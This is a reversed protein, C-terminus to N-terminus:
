NQDYTYLLIPQASKDIIASLKQLFPISVTPCGESRCISLPNVEGDPVCSHSHLVVFRKFANSNTADLGYLKYARGFRGNYPKGIKYRGLSTCGCGVDNGYKRENSCQGHTVLGADIVSDKKLDYIFFRNKGSEIRMDILFCTNTNYGHQKAYALLPKAHGTLRTMLNKNSIEKVTRHTKGTNYKSYYWAAGTILFCLLLALSLFLIRKM